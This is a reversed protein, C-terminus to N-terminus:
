KDRIARHDLAKSIVEVQRESSDPNSDWGPMHSLQWHDESDAGTEVVM